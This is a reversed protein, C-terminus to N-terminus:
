ASSPTGFSRTSMLIPAVHSPMAAASTSSFSPIRQLRVSTKPMACATAHACRPAVSMEGNTPRM